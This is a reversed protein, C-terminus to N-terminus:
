PFEPPVFGHEALQNAIWLIGDILVGERYVSDVSRHRKQAPYTVAFAPRVPDSVEIALVADENAGIQLALRTSSHDLVRVDVGTSRLKRLLADLADM